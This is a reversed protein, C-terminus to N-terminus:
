LPHTVTPFPTPAIKLRTEVGRPRTVRGDQTSIAAQLVIGSRARPPPNKQRDKKKRKRCPLGYLQLGQVRCTIKNMNNPPKSGPRPRSAAHNKRFWTGGHAENVTFCGYFLRLIVLPQRASTMMHATAPLCALEHGHARASGSRCSVGCNDPDM